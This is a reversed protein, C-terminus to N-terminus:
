NFNNAIKWIQNMYIQLLFNSIFFFSRAVEGLNKELDRKTVFILM